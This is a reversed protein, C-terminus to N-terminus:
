GSPCEQVPEHKQGTKGRELRLKERGRKEVEVMKLVKEGKKGNM